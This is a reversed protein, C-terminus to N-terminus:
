LKLLIQNDLMHKPTIQSMMVWKLSIILHSYLHGQQRPRIALGLSQRTGALMCPLHTHKTLWTLHFSLLFRSSPAIFKQLKQSEGLPGFSHRLMGNHNAYLKKVRISFNTKFASATKRPSDNASVKQSNPSLINSNEEKQSSVVASSSEDFKTEKKLKESLETEEERKQREKEEEEEERKEREEEERKQREEEEKQNPCDFFKNVIKKSSKKRM